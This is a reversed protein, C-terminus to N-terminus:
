KYNINSVIYKRKISFDSVSILNDSEYMEIPLLHLKYLNMSNSKNLNLVLFQVELETQRCFQSFERMWNVMFSHKDFLRLSIFSM